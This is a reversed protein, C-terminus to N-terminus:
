VKRRDAEKETKGTIIGYVATIKISKFLNRIASDKDSFHKFDVIYIKSHEIM